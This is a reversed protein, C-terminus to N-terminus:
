PTQRKTFTEGTATMLSYFGPEAFVDAFMMRADDMTTPWNASFAFAVEGFGVAKPPLYRIVYYVRSGNM